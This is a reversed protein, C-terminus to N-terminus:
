FGVRRRRRYGLSIFAVLLLLARSPEPVVTITGTSNFSSTDWSWGYGSIDALTLDLNDELNTDGTLNVWDLLDFSQLYSPAANLVVKLVSAADVNLNAAPGVVVRDHAAAGFLNFTVDAGSALSLGGNLQLESGVNRVAGPTLSGGSQVTVIGTM